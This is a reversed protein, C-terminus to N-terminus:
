LWYPVYCTIGDVKCTMWGAQAANAGLKAGLTATAGSGAGVSNIMLTYADTSYRDSVRMSGNVERITTSYTVGSRIIVSGYCDVATSSGQFFAGVGATNIGAVGYASSSAADGRVGYRGVGDAIGNVGSAGLGNASQGKRTLKQRM